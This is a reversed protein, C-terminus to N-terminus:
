YKNSRRSNKWHTNMIKLGDWSFRKELLNVNSGKPFFTKLKDIIKEKLHLHERARLNLKEQQELSFEQPNTPLGMSKLEKRSFRNKIDQIEGLDEPEAPENLDPLGSPLMMKGALPGTLTNLVAFAFLVPSLIRGACGLRNLIFYLSKGLLM